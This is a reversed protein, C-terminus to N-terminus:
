QQQHLTVYINIVDLQNIIYNLDDINKERSTIDHNERSIIDIETLFNYFDGVIVILKDIGEQLTQWM